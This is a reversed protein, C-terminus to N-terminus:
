DRKGEERLGEPHPEIGSRLPFVPIRYANELPQSHDSLATKGAHEGALPVTRSRRCSCYSRLSTRLHNTYPSPPLSHCLHPSPPRSWACRCGHRPTPCGLSLHIPQHPSYAPTTAYRLLGQLRHPRSHPSRRICTKGSRSTIILLILNILLPILYAHNSSLSHLYTSRDRRISNFFVLTRGTFQKGYYYLFEEKERDGAAMVSYLMLGSPLLGDGEKGKGKGGSEADCGNSSSSFADSTAIIEPNGRQGLQKMYKRLAFTQQSKQNLSLTASFFLTQSRAELLSHISPHIFPHIFLFSHTM